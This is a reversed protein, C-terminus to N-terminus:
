GFSPYIIAPVVIAVWIALAIILIIFGLRRRRGILAAGLAMTSPIVGYYMAYLILKLYYARGTVMSATEVAIFSMMVIIFSALPNKTTLGGAISIIPVAVLLLWMYIRIIHLSREAPIDPAMASIHPILLISIILTFMAIYPTLEESKLKFYTYTALMLIRKRTPKLSLLVITLALLIIAPLVRVLRMWISEFVKVTVTKSFIPRKTKDVEVIVVLGLKCIGPKESFWNPM